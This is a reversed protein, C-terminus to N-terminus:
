VNGARLVYELNHYTIYVPIVNGVAGMNSTGSTIQQGVLDVSIESSDAEVTVSGQGVSIQQGQPTTTKNGSAAVTGQGSTILQSSLVISAATNTTVNVSGQGMSVQQGVLTDQNDVTVSPTGAASTIDLGPLPIGIDVKVFSAGSSSQIQLGTLTINTVTGDVLTVQRDYYTDNFLRYYYLTFVGTQPGSTIRGTANGGSTEPTLTESNVIKPWYSRDGDAPALIFGQYASDTTTLATANTVPYGVYNSDVTLTGRSSTTQQGTLTVSEVVTVTPTGQGSTIAQGTLNVTADPNSTTIALTVQRDSSAVETWTSQLAVNAAAHSKTSGTTGQKFTITDGSVKSGIAAGLEAGPTATIAQGGMGVILLGIGASAPITIQSSWVLTAGDVGAGFDAKEYLGVEYVASNTNNVAIYVAVSDVVDGSVFTQIDVPNLYQVSSGSISVNNGSFDTTGIIGTM